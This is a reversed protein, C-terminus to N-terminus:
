VIQKPIAFLAIVTLVLRVIMGGLRVDVNTRFLQWGPTGTALAIVPISLVEDVLPIALAAAIIGWLTRDNPPFPGSVHFAAALAATVCIIPLWPSHESRGSITIKWLAWSVSVMGLVVVLGVTTMLRRDTEDTGASM